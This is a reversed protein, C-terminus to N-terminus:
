ASPKSAEVLCDMREFSDKGTRLPKINEFGADKLDTEVENFTFCDGGQTNVLMNIAFMAGSAPSTRSDDMIHDRILIKGGPELSSFIKSYLDRNEQRSNQHIIASLLVLDAGAPLQDHYFNGSKFTVRDELGQDYIFERCFPIVQELDFIIARLGPNAELFAQTYVGSGGGIDLLCKRDSADYEEAIETSLQRGVVHMAEIFAKQENEGLETVDSRYYNEGFGITETLMHWNDWVHNLHLAMPLVTQEHKQSLTEAKTSLSYYGQLDKELFGQIVLCDLLRTLARLDCSTEQALKEATLSSSHLTTFIDLECATLIVRSGMFARIEALPDTKNSM